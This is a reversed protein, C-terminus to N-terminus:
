QVISCLINLIIRSCLIDVYVFMYIHESCLIIRSCLISLHYTCGYMHVNTYGYIHVHVMYTWTTHVDMYIYMYWIYIYMYWIHELSICIWIYTCKYMSIYTRIYMYMWIYTCIGYINLTIHVDMYTYMWIYTSTCVVQVYITYTCIYIHVFDSSCIVKHEVYSHGMDWTHIHWTGYVFSDHGVYPNTM